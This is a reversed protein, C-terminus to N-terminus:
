SGPADYFPGTVTGDPVHAGAGVVAFPGIRCNDGIVAGRAMTKEIVTNRGVTSRDIRSDPGIECGDGAVTSGQLMTGPFLTVDVGLQVTVDIYTREPDVMTVGRDLWGRNTRRRLEAEAKALGHRDDVPRISFLDSDLAAAIVPHGSDALVTPVTSLHHLGTGFAPASRRAAPALLERRVCYIGLGVEVLEDTPPADAAHTLGTIAGRQDRDIRPWRESGAVSASLVTCAAEHKRHEYLLGAVTELDLLPLDAPLVLIDGDDDFDEFGTLGVLAADASGRNAQQEVFDVPLSPPDEMIRKAIWEGRPGTVVVASEVGGDALVELVHSLMPRGCLMHIPKPRESRMPAGSATAIVLAKLSRQSMNGPNPDFWRRGSEFDPTRGVSSGPLSLGSYGFHELVNRRNWVGITDGAEHSRENFLAALAHTLLLM